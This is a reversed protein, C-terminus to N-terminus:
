VPELHIRDERILNAVNVRSQAPAPEGAFRRRDDWQIKALTCGPSLTELEVVAGRAFPVWGTIQGTSRLFAAKFAVRSGVTIEVIAM